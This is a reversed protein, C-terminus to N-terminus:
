IGDGARLPLDICSAHAGGSHITFIPPRGHPVQGYHDCDGGGIALRIRSGKAFRWATPLLAFVLEAPVGPVLMAADARHFSRFPWCARYNAPPESLKRHLARLVGETVYRLTGDAEEETLYVHVAADAETASLWLTVVAHGALEAAQPLPESRWHPLATETRGWDPYYARTDFGALREYRTTEGTGFGFDVAHRTESARPAAARLSADSDLYLRTTERVPPWSPAARWQEAHCAFYHVRAEDRLGTHREMLYEDFFRLIAGDLAFAPSEEGRWPSVNIRAGHDWPGLLLHHDPNPLTLYRAIAGNMYGAGDMWGSVSFVAVDEPIRDAYTCPSFAAPTFGPDYPLADDRYRFEALLEPMRFNGRHARVAEDRLSGDADEDVPKPGALNPDKFYAFQELLDRRDHDLAMMLADYNVALRNLKLGGPFYHDSYTDWVAFLPAVARVAKHGTSALFDSAAGGYSIGVGGIRGDCWPQAVIWDALERYDDRERPSRFSDRTGFSAGTGRVDAAVMAYGRPVFLDRYRAVMPADETGAPAGARLAFRRYYPTPVFMAPVRGRAGPPLYVDVALRCGDRMTVYHSRPTGAPGAPPRTALYASPPTRWASSDRDSDSM